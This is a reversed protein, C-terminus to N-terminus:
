QRVRLSGEPAIVALGRDDFLIFDVVLCRVLFGHLDIQLNHLETIALLRHHQLLIALDPDSQQLGRRLIKWRPPVGHM